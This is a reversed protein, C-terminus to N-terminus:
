SWSPASEGACNQEWCNKTIETYGELTTEQEDDYNELIGYELEKVNEIVRGLKGAEPAVVPANNKGVTVGLYVYNEGDFLLPQGIKVEEGDPLRFNEKM